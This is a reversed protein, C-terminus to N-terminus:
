QVAEACPLELCKLQQGRAQVGMLDRGLEAEALGGDLAVELLDIALEADRVAHFRGHAEDLGAAEVDRGASGGGLASGRPASRVQRRTAGQVMVM